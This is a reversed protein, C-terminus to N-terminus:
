PATTYITDHHLKGNKCSSNRKRPASDRVSRGVGNRQERSDSSVNAGVDETKAGPPSPEKLRAENAKSPGTEQAKQYDQQPEHKTNRNKTQASLHNGDRTERQENLVRNSRPLEESLHNLPHLFITTVISARQNDSSRRLPNCPSSAGAVIGPPTPRISVSAVRTTRFPLIKVRTRDRQCTPM